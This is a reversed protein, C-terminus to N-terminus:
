ICWEVGAKLSPNCRNQILESVWISFVPLKWGPLMDPIEIIDTNTLLTIDDNPRYLIVSQEDPNILMGVQTGLELMREISAQLSILSERTSKIEIVLDPATELYNSGYELRTESIFSIGLAQIDHNPLQFGTNIFVRGLKYPDVWCVLWATLCAAIEGAVIDAPYYSAFAGAAPNFCIGTMKALQVDRLHEQIQQDLKELDVGLNALLQTVQNQQGYGQRILGLLLHGTDITCHGMEISAELAIQLSQRIRSAPSSDSYMRKSKLFLHEIEYQVKPLTVGRSRLVQAVLDMRDSMLGLLLHHIDIAPNHQHDVHDHANIKPASSKAVAIAQKAASTFRAFIEDQLFKDFSDNSCHAVM